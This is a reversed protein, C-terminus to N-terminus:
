NFGSTVFKVDIAMEYGRQVPLELTPLFETQSAENGKLAAHDCTAKCLGDQPAGSVIIHDM